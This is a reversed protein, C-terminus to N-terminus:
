NIWPSRCHCCGSSVVTHIYTHDDCITVVKIDVRDNHRRVRPLSHWRYTIIAHHGSSSQVPGIAYYLSIFLHIGGHSDPTIGRTLVLLNSRVSNSSHAPQRPVTRGFGDRSVMNEPASLVLLIPLRVGNISVRTTHTIVM